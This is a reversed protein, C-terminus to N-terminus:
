MQVVGNLAHEAYRAQALFGFVPGDYMQGNGAFLELM